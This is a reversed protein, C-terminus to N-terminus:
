NLILYKKKKQNKTTPQRKIDTTSFTKVIISKLRNIGQEEDQPKDDKQSESIEEEWKDTSEFGITYKMPFLIIATGITSLLITVVVALLQYGFQKGNGYFAGDAGSSNVELTAFLGTLLSGCVGAVGHCFFVDLSETVHLVNKLQIAGYCLIVSIM